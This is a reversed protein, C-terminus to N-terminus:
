VSKAVVRKLHEIDERPLDDYIGEKVGSAQEGEMEEIIGKLTSVLENVNYLHKGSKLGLAFFSLDNAYVMVELQHLSNIAPNIGIKVVTLDYGDKILEIAAAKVAEEMHNPLIIKKM